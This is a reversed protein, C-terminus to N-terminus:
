IKNKPKSAMEQRDAEKIKGMKLGRISYWHKKFSAADKESIKM